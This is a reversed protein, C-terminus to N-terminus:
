DIKLHNGWHHTRTLLSKELIIFISHSIFNEDGEVANKIHSQTSKNKM